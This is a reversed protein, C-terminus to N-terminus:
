GQRALDYLEEAVSDASAHLAEAFAIAEAETDLIGTAAFDLLEPGPRHEGTETDEEEIEIWVKYRKAM